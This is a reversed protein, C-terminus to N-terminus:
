LLSVAKAYQSKFSKKFEILRVPLNKFLDRIIVQTGDKKSVKEKKILTGQKDFELHWGTAWEVKKTLISVNSINCLSSLAEGRFGLSKM